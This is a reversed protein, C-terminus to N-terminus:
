CSSIYTFFPILKSILISYFSLLVLAKGSCHIQSVTSIEASNLIFAPFFQALLLCRSPEYGVRTCPDQLEALLKELHLLLERVSRM